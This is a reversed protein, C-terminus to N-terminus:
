SRKTGERRANIYMGEGNNAKRCWVRDKGKEGVEIFGEPSEFFQQGPELPKDLVTRSEAVLDAMPKPRNLERVKAIFDDQTEPKKRDALSATETDLKAVKEPAEAVAVAGEKSEVTLVEEVKKKPRAM